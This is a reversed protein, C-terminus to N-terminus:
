HPSEAELTQSSLTSATQPSHVRITITHSGGDYVIHAVLRGYLAPQTPFELAAFAYGYPSLDGLTYPLHSSTKTSGYTASTLRVNRAMLISANRLAVVIKVNGQPSLTLLDAGLAELSIKVQGYFDVGYCDPPASSAATNVAGKSPFQSDLWPLPKSPIRVGTFRYGWAEPVVRYNAPPLHLSTFEYYGREDTIAHYVISNGSMLMVSIGPMIRAYDPKIRREKNPLLIGDPLFVTGSISYEFPQLPVEKDLIAVTYNRPPMPPWWGWALHEFEKFVICGSTWPREPDSTDYGLGYHLYISSSGSPAIPANALWISGQPQIADLKRLQDVGHYQGAPCIDQAEYCTKKAPQGTDRDVYEISGKYHTVRGSYWHDGYPAIPRFKSSKELRRVVIDNPGPEVEVQLILPPPNGISAPLWGSSGGELWWNGLASRGLTWGPKGIIGPSEPYHWTFASTGLGWALALDDVNAVVWYRTNAHLLVAQPAKYEYYGESSPSETGQLQAVRAHPRDDYDSFLAVKFGGVVPQSAASLYLM